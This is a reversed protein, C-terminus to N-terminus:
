VKIRKRAIKSSKVIDRLAEFDSSGSSVSKSYDFGGPSNRKRGKKPKTFGNYSKYKAATDRLNEMKLTMDAIKDQETDPDYSKLLKDYSDYRKDAASLWKGVDENSKARDLELNLKSDEQDFEYQTKSKVTYGQDNDAKLYVKDGVIKKKDNSSKFNSIDLAKQAKEKTDFDKNEGDITAYYKGSSKYQKIESNTSASGRVQEIEKKAATKEDAQAKKTARDEIISRRFAGRQEIPLDRNQERQNVNLGTTNGFGKDNTVRVPSFANLTPNDSKIPDGTYPNTRTPINANLGPIDKVIGQYIQKATGADYDTKRQTPDVQRGVWSVLSKFPSLQNATNTAQNAFIDGLSAGDKSQMISTFDGVNKMYSQDRFYGMVGSATTMIKDATSEDISGKDLADKTAGVIALNFSIAPHLKSYGYWKNGIKVAYAQKGEARFADREKASTPENFTIDGNAGLLGATLAMASTGMLAKAVQAGKDAHGAVTAFGVPSYEIGQKFLNTPTAIFPFTFKSVNRIVPNKSSRWQQVAKPITDIADLIHGQGEKGLRQRFLRYTAAEDAKLAVQGATGVDIGKAQRKLLSATEGAKSLTTGFQDSAELLKPIVTFIKDAVGKLGSTGLPANRAIDFDPNEMLAKGNMVDKFRQVAEPISEAVGKYYSGAESAFRTRPGGTAKSRIADVGGEFLKQVPAIGGVGQMNSTINVIHTLPSSLMNTYRYKDLWDGAKAPVLDRYATVVEKPNNFDVTALRKAYIDPNVGASDLLKFIKQQPTDLVNAIIKRAQLQRAVDSGQSVSIRGQEAAQKLFDGAKVSNGAKRATEASEMLSVVNQRTNLQTAIRKKTQDVTYTKIDLGADKAIRKVEENSLKNVAQTTEADLTSKAEKGLNLRETNLQTKQGKPINKPLSSEVASQSKPGSLPQGVIPLDASAKSPTAKSLNPSSDSLQPKGLRGEPGFMANAEAQNKPANMGGGEGMSLANKAKSLFSQQAAGSLEPGVIPKGNETIDLPKSPLFNYPDNVKLPPAERLNYPDNIKIPGTKAGDPNNIKFGGIDANDPNNIQFPRQINADDPNSIRISGVEDLPAVKPVLSTTVKSLASGAVGLGIDGATGTVGSLAASKLVDNMSGGQNATTVGGQGINILGTKVLNPTQSQIGKKVGFETIAKGVPAGTMLSAAELAAQATGGGIRKIGTSFDGRRAEDANYFTGTNLLGGSNRNFMDNAAEVNRTANEFAIPNNTRAAVQQAGTYYAQPIQAAATNLTKAIGGVTGRTFQGGAQGAQQWLSKQQTPAAQEFTRNNDFPNVQDFAKSAWNRQPTATSAPPPASRQEDLKKKNNLNLFEKLNFAM